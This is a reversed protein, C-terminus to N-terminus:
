TCAWCLPEPFVCTFVKRNAEWFSFLLYLVIQFIEKRPSVCRLAVWMILKQLWEILALKKWPPIFRRLLSRTAFTHVWTHLSTEREITDRTSTSFTKTAGREREIAENRSKPSYRLYNIMFSHCRRSHHPSFTTSTRRQRNMKHRRREDRDSYRRLSPYHVLLVPLNREM